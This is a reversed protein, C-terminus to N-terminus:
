STARWYTVALFDGPSPAAVFTIINNSVVYDSDPGPALMLGNQYVSETGPL